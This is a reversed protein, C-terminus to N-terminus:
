IFLVLPTVLTIKLKNVQVIISITQYVAPSPSSAPCTAQVVKSGSATFYVSMISVSSTTTKSTEGVISSDAVSLGVVCTGSYLNGDEGKVTATIDFNFNLSPTTTSATLVISYAFNVVTFSSTTALQMDTATATITFTNASLIRLNSFTIEGATTSATLTGVTSGSPTLSLSISYPGRVTHLTAGSNDYVGITMSFANLSNSPASFGSIKLMPQLVTISLTSQVQPSSDVAPCTATITKTGSTTFYVSMTGSGGTISSVLTGALNTASLTMSCVGTFANNDEGKIVINVTFSHDVTPSTPTNTLTIAYVYNVIAVSSSTTVSIISSVTSCSATITFTGASLIRLSTFSSEGSTTALGATGSLM